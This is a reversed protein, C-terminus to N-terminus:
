LRIRSLVERLAREHRSAGVGTQENRGRLYEYSLSEVMFELLYPMDKINRKDDVFYVKPVEGNQNLKWFRYASAKAASILANYFTDTIGVNVNDYDVSFMMEGHYRSAVASVTVVDDTRNLDDFPMFTPRNNLDNASFNILSRSM